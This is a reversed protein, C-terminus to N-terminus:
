ARQRMDMGSGIYALVFGVLSVLLLGSSAPVVTYVSALLAFGGWLGTRALWQNMLESRPAALAALNTLFLAVSFVAALGFLVPGFVGSVTGPAWLAYVVYLYVLSGIFKLAWAAWNPKKNAM